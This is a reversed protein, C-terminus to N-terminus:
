ECAAAAPALVETVSTGPFFIPGMGSALIAVLLLGVETGSLQSQQLELNDLLSMDKELTELAATILTQDKKSNIVKNNNKSKTSGGNTNNNNNAAAKKSLPLAAVLPTMRQQGNNDIDGGGRSRSGLSVIKGSSSTGYSAIDSRVGSLNQRQWKILRSRRSSPGRGSFINAIGFTGKNFWDAPYYEDSMDGGNDIENNNSDNVEDYGGADGVVRALSQSISLAASGIDDKLAVELYKKSHANNTCSKKDLTEM